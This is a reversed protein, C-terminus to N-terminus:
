QFSQQESYMHLTRGTKRENGSYSYYQANDLITDLATETGETVTTSDRTWTVTTAPGGTSICALTFQDDYTLTFTMGGNLAVVGADIAYYLLCVYQVKKVEEM